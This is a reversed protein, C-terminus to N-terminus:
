QAGDTVTKDFFEARVGFEDLRARVCDIDDNLVDDDPSWYWAPNGGKDIRVDADHIGCAKLSTSIQEISAPQESCASLLVISAM